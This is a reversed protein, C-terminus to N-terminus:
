EEAMVNGTSHIRSFRASIWVINRTCGNPPTISIKENNDLLLISCEVDEDSNTWQIDSLWPKSVICITIGGTSRVVHCAFWCNGLFVFPVLRIPLVFSFYRIIYSFSIYWVILGTLCFMSWIGCMANVFEIKQQRKLRLNFM